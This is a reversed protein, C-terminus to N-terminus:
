SLANLWELAEADTTFARGILGSNAAVTEGFRRPDLRRVVIAVRVHGESARAWEQIRFYSGAVTVEGSYDLMSADVLLKGVGQTRAYLIADTVRSAADRLPITGVLRLVATDALIEVGSGEGM